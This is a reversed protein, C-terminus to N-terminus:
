EWFLRQFTGEYYSSYVAKTNETPITKMDDHLTVDLNTGDTNAALKIKEELRAICKRNEEHIPSQSM